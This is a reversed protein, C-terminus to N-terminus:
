ESKHRANKNWWGAGPVPPKEPVETPIQESQNLTDEVADVGVMGIIDLENYNKGLNFEVALATRKNLASELEFTIKVKRYLLFQLAKIFVDWTMKDYHLEKDLNGRAMSRKKGEPIKANAGRTAIHMLQNWKVVGVDEAKLLRRFVTTLINQSESIGKDDQDLM